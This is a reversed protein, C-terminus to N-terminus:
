EAERRRDKRVTLWPKKKPRILGEPLNVQTQRNKLLKPVVRLRESDPLREEFIANRGAFLGSHIVFTEGL